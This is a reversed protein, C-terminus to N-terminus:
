APKPPHFIPSPIIYIHETFIANIINSGTRELNFTFGSISAMGSISCASVCLSSSVCSPSCHDCAQASLEDTTTSEHCPSLEYSNNSAMNHHANVQAVMPSSATLMINANTTKMPMAAMLSQMFLGSIVLLLSFFRVM